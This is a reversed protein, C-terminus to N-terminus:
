RLRWFREAPVEDGIALAYRRLVAEIEARSAGAEVYRFVTALQSPYCMIADIKAEWVAGIGLRAAEVMPAELRDFRAAATGARLAYPLDEYFLVDWGARALAIGAAAAHRHDVHGGIALPAYIRTEGDPAGALGLAAVIEDALGAEGAIPDAFLLDDSTYWDGRYIADRFPLFDVRTGLIAAAAAEEAGRAAIVAAASLGWGAHQGLAFPTLPQAPDPEAGFLLAVGPTRGAQALLLATGGCSLAVDDYHPSLFLHRPPRTLEARDLLRPVPPDSSM